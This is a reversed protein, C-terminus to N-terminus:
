FSSGASKYLKVSVNKTQGSRVITISANENVKSAKVASILQDADFMPTGNYSTVVDGAQLGAKEASGGPIVQDILVGAQPLGYKQAVEQTVTSVYVGLAPTDSSNM